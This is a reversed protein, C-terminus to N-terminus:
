FLRLPRLMASARWCSREGLKQDDSSRFFLQDTSEDYLQRSSRSSELKVSRLDFFIVVFMSKIIVIISDGESEKERQTIKLCAREVLKKFIATGRKRELLLTRMHVLVEVLM